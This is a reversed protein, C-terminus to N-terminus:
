GCREKQSGLEPWYLVVSNAGLSNRANIEALIYESGVMFGM